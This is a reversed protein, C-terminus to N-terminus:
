NKKQVYQKKRWKVGQGEGVRSNMSLLDANSVGRYPRKTVNQPMNRVPGQGKSAEPIIEMSRDLKSGRYQFGPGQKM